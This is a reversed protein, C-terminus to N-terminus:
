RYTCSQDARRAAAGSTEEEAEKRSTRKRNTVSVLTFLAAAVLVITGGPPLALFWATLLGTVVSATGVAVSWGVSARFSRGLLRGSAVPLVMLAAVLLVGVVRMAAVVTVATLAALLANLVDVPLGAVRAADEDIAISFLARGCLGMTAVVLLGILAVVVVDGVTVTLISGFLYAFLNANLSGALGLLVVGLAIGSYFLLALALDGSAQGRGRLREIWLAGGVAAVLASWIPWVDLLLGGAIGAFAIHGVGDGMLSMRRQVLFTGILPACAGVVLGAVLALRMFQLDFPSPWTM